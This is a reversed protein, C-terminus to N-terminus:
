FFYDDTRTFEIRICYIRISYMKKSPPNTIIRFVLQMRLRAHFMCSLTCCRAIYWELSQHHFSHPSDLSNRGALSRCSNKERGWQCNSRTSDILLFWTLACSTYGGIENFSELGCPSRKSHLAFLTSAFQRFYDRGNLEEMERMANFLLSTSSWLSSRYMRRTKHIIYM